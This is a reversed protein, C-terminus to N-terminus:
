VPPKRKELRKLVLQASLGTFLGAICGSFLLVPLYGLVAATRMVLMAAGIQGINHFVAGLISALWIWNPPIFGRVCLMGALCLAAGSASYLLASVNGSFMAGLLIRAAVLM